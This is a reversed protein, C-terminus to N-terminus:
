RKPLVIMRTSANMNVSARMADIDHFRHVSFLSLSSVMSVDTCSSVAVHLFSQTPLAIRLLACRSFWRVHANVAVFRGMSM